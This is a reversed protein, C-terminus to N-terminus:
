RFYGSVDVIFHVPASSDNYVRFWNTGPTNTIITNSARTKGVRFSMTSTAPPSAADPYIILQGNSAPSVVTVNAALAAASVYCPNTYGTVIRSQGAGLAGSNRSDYIRCPPMTYFSTPAMATLVVTRSDTSGCASRVRVWYQQTESLVVDLTSGSGVFTGRDPVVGEYWDYTAGPTDTEAFLTVTSGRPLAMDQTLSTIAPAATCEEVSQTWVPSVSTEFTASGDYRATIAHVGPSLSSTTLAAKRESVAVTGIATAGDFFTVTGAPAGAAAVTALFTVATGSKSPAQTAVVHTFTPKVCGEDAVLSSFPTELVGSFTISDLEWGWAPSTSATGIRFRVRVKDGPDVPPVLVTHVDVAIGFCRRNALPNAISHFTHSDYVPLGIDEWEGGNRSMEVVGCAGQLVHYRDFELRLLGRSDVTVSPSELREDSITAPAAGYWVSRSGSVIRRWPLVPKETGFSTTWRTFSTDVTDTATADHIEDANAVTQFTTTRPGVEMSDHAVQATYEVYQIGTVAGLAVPVTVTVSGHPPWSPVTVSNGGPFTVGSSPSTVTVAAGDLAVTGVNRLTLTLEGTEGADLIGDGDCGGSDSVLHSVFRADSGSEYSEVVPSNLRTYRDPAVAGIGAGRRAFAQLFLVYDAVDNAAAVALLADRAEVFTPTSPTVKLSAVLYQKMRTRAEAFTLRPSAGQTERLLAAYCEWLMTAWIEGAHHPSVNSSTTVRIPASTPLAEGHQIHKFTLANKAFDTSYPVRRHGFYYGDNNGGDAGGSYTYTGIPYVGNWTANGPNGTDDERVTLLLSVFDSWGEALGRAQSPSLGNADGVLRATLYHGWEHAVLQNDIAGDRQEGAEARMRGVVATGADLETKISVAENFAITLFPTEFGSISETPTYIADPWASYNVLVIGGAGAAAINLLKTTVSCGDEGSPAERDVLVIRGAVTAGNTLATCASRPAAYVVPQAVDYTAPGFSPVGTRRRGVASAPSEVSFSPVGLPHFYYMQMQPSGGDAPTSMSSLHIGSHEQAEALMRDGEAGGRGYNSHQANGAAEDFGADYFWDHLYNVTFFLQVVAAQVSPDRHPDDAAYTHQFANPGTVLGRSDRMGFPSTGTADPTYGAPWVIDSYADVNNGITETAGDPLWPDNMSFPHNALTVDQQSVLPAQYGDLIPSPKPHAANGAPSDYPVGDGSAWVRYTYSSGAEATLSHRFLLRGDRASVVYSYADTGGTVPDHAIVEVYYGAELGDALRFYVKKLRVPQELRVASASPLTFRLYPAASAAPALEVARVAVGTMDGIAVVAAEQERLRFESRAAAGAGASTLYGGIGTLRLQRDMVVNMEERFIEIGDIQQRLKVVIAGQGTDHVMAVKAQTVEGASLEYLSSFRQVHARAAAVEPRQAGGQEVQSVHGVTAAADPWVFTPVGLRPEVPIARGARTLGRAKTEVSAAADVRPKAAAFADIPPLDRASLTLPLFLILLLRGSCRLADM